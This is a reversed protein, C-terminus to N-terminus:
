EADGCYESLKCGACASGRAMKAQEHEQVFKLYPEQYNEVFRSSHAYLYDMIHKQLCISYGSNNVYEQWVFEDPLVGSRAMDDTYGLAKYFAQIDEIFCLSEEGLLIHRYHQHNPSSLVVKLQPLEKLAQM